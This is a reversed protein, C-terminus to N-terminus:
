LGLESTAQKRKFDLIMPQFIEDPTRGELLKGKNLHDIVQIEDFVLRVVEPKSISAELLKLLIQRTVTGVRGADAASYSIRANPSLGEKAIETAYTMAKHWYNQKMINILLQDRTSQEPTEWGKVKPDIGLAHIARFTKTRSFRDKNILLENKYESAIKALFERVCQGKLYIGENDGDVKTVLDCIKSFGSEDELHAKAIRLGWGTNLNGDLFKRMENSDIVERLRLYSDDSAQYSEFEEYTMLYRTM